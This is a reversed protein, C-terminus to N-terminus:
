NCVVALTSLATCAAIHSFYLHLWVLLGRVQLQKPGTLLTANDQDATEGYGEATV